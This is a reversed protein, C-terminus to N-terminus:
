GLSTALAVTKVHSVYNTMISAHIRKIDRFGFTMEGFQQFTNGITFFDKQRAASLRDRAKHRGCMRAPTDQACAPAVGIDIEIDEGGIVPPFRGGVLTPILSSYRSSVCTRNHATAAGSLSAGSMRDRMLFCAYTILTALRQSNILLFSLRSEGKFSGAIQHSRYTTLGPVGTRGM